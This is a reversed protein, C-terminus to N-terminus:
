LEEMLERAHKEWYPDETQAIAKELLQRAEKKSAEDWQEVLIEAM